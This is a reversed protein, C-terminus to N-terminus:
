QQSLQEQWQHWSIERGPFAINKFPWEQEFWQKIAQHLKAELALENQRLWYHIECDYHEVRSPDIYISGICSDSKNNFISYAFAQRSTFEAGHVILSAKNEEFTMTASPWKSDPGFIGVLHKQSSMVAEYDQAAVNEDLVVFKFVDSIHERTPKFSAPVFTTKTTMKQM